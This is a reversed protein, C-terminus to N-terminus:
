MHSFDYRALGMAALLKGPDVRVDPASILGQYDCMPAGAPMGVGGRTKAPFFGRVQGAEHLVAVRVSSEEPARAAEVARSWHPSLYPSGLDPSLTQFGTWIAM